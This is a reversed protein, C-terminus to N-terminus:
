RLLRKRSSKIQVPDNLQNYMPFHSQLTACVSVERRADTHRVTLTVLDSQASHLCLLVSGVELPSTRRSASRAARRQRLRCFPRRRVLRSLDSLDRGRRGSRRSASRSRANGRKSHPLDSAARIAVTEDEARNGYVWM